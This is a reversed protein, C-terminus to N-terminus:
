PPVHGPPGAGRPGRGQAPVPAPPRGGRGEQIGGPALAGGGGWSRKGGGGYEEIVRVDAPGEGVAEVVAPEDLVHGVVVPDLRTTRNRLSEESVVRADRQNREVQRLGSGLQLVRRVPGGPEVEGQVVAAPVRVLLGAHRQEGSAEFREM